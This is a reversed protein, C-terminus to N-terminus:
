SLEEVTVKVRKGSLANLKPDALTVKCGEIPHPFNSVVDEFEVVLPEKPLWGYQEAEALTYLVRGVNESYVRGCVTFTGRSRVSVPYHISCTKELIVKGHQVHWVTQGASFTPSKDLKSTM